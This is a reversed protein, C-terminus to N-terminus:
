VHARGIEEGGLTQPVKYDAIAYPSGGVDEDRWGPLITDFAARLHPHELAQSRARPGTTWVGMLWIHTFGLQRWRAFEADPASGLTVPAGFQRSLERLWCRTNIEYLLPHNM